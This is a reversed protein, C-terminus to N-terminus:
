QLWHLFFLFNLHLFFLYIFFWIANRDIVIACHWINRESESARERETWRQLSDVLFSTSEKSKPFTCCTNQGCHKEIQDWKKSEKKWEKGWNLFVRIFINPNQLLSLSRFFVSVYIMQRKEKRKQKRKWAFVFLFLGLIFFFNTPIKGLILNYLLKELAATTLVAVWLWHLQFIFVFVNYHFPLFLSLLMM